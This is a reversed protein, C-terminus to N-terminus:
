KVLLFGIPPHEHGCDVDTKLVPQLRSLQFRL